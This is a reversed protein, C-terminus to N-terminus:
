RKTRKNRISSPASSPHLGEKVQRELMRIQREVESAADIPVPGPPEEPFAKHEGTEVATTERGPFLKGHKANRRWSLEADYLEEQLRTNGHFKQSAKGQQRLM